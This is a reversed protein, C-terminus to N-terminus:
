FPHYLGHLYFSHGTGWIITFPILKPPYAGVLFSSYTWARVKAPLLDVTGTSAVSTVEGAKARPRQRLAYSLARKQRIDALFIFASIFLQPKSRLLTM